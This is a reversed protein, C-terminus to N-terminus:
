AHLVVSYLVFAALIGLAIKWGETRGHLRAVIVAGVAVAALVEITHVRGAGIIRSVLVPLAIGAALAFLAPHVGQSFASKLDSGFYSAGVLLGLIVWAVSLFFAAAYPARSPSRRPSLTACASPWGTSRWPGTCTARAVASAAPMASGTSTLRMM